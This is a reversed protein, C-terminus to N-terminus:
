FFRVIIIELLFLFLAALLFYWWYATEQTFVTDSEINQTEDSVLDHQIFQEYIQNKNSPFFSENLNQNVAFSSLVQKGNKVLYYGLSRKQAPLKLFSQENQNILQGAIVANNHEFHMSDQILLPIQIVQDFNYAITAVENASFIMQFILPVILPNQSLDTQDLELGTTTFFCQKNQVLFPMGNDLRLLTQNATSQDIPFYGYNIPTNQKTNPALDSMFVDKFFPTKTGIREWTTSDMQYSQYQISKFPTLNQNIQDLNMAKTPFFCLWKKNQHLTKFIWSPVDKCGAIFTMQAGQITPLEITSPSFTKFEIWPDNKLIDQFYDQIEKKPTILVINVKERKTYSFLRENDHNHANDNIRIAGKVIQAKPVNFEFSFIGNSQADLEVKQSQQTNNVLLTSQIDQVPYDGHNSLRFFIKDVGQIPRSPSEFWVSDVSINAVENSSFQIASTPTTLWGQFNSDQLEQFDSILVTKDCTEAILSQGRLVIDKISTRFHTPQITSVLQLAKQKSALRANFAKSENTLIQFQTGQPSEEILKNAYSKAQELLNGKNNSVNMSMSNDIYVSLIANQPTESPAVPYAFSFVLLLVGLVRSILLLWNKIERQKKTTEQLSKLLSTDSFYFTKFRRFNILHILIPVIALFSLWLFEPYLFQLAM